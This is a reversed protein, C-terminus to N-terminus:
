DVGQNGRLAGNNGSLARKHSYKLGKPGARALAIIVLIIEAPVAASPNGFFVM